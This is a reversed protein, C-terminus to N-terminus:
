LDFEAKLAEANRPDNLFRIAAFGAAGTALVDRYNRKDIGGLGLVPLEGAAEAAKRLSELGVANGKGPSDFVPGYVALDAGSAAALEDYSHASVGILFGTPVLSRVIQPGVSHSPLHVGDAGTALAVDLRENILLKTASGKCIAAAQVGLGFLSRTSLQKERIQVLPIRFGVVLEIHRLLVSCAQQYNQENISGDSIFYILPKGASPM